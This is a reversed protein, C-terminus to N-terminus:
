FLFVIKSIKLVLDSAQKRIFFRTYEFFNDCREIYEMNPLDHSTFKTIFHLFMYSFSTNM